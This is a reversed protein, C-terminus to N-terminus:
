DEFILIRDLDKDVKSTFSKFKRELEDIKKQAADLKKQLEEDSLKSKKPQTQKMLRM